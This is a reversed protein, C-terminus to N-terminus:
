ASAAPPSIMKVYRPSGMIAADFALMGTGTLRGASAPLAAAPARRSTCRSDRLEGCPM